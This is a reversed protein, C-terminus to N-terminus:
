VAVRQGVDEVIERYMNFNSTPLQLFCPELAIKKFHKRIHSMMMELLKSCHHVQAFSLADLVFEAPLTGESSFKELKVLTANFLRKMDYKHAARALKLVNGHELSAAAAKADDTYIFQMICRLIAPDEDQIHIAHVCPEEALVEVLKRKRGERFSGSLMCHFYPIRRLMCAHAHIREDNVVFVVDADQESWLLNGIYASLKPFADPEDQQVSSFIGMDGVAAYMAQDCRIGTIPEMDHGKINARLTGVRADYTLDVRAGDGKMRDLISNVYPESWQTSPLVEEKERWRKYGIQSM